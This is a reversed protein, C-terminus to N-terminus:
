GAVGGISALGSIITQFLSGLAEIFSVLAIILGVALAGVLLSYEIAASGATGARFQNISQRMPGRAPDFPNLRVTVIRAPL